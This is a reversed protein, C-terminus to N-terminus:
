GWIAKFTSVDGWISAANAQIRAIVPLTADIKTDLEHNSLQLQAGLYAAAQEKEEGSLALYEKIAETGNSLLLILNPASAILQFAEGASVKRDAFVNSILTGEQGLGSLVNYLIQKSNETM